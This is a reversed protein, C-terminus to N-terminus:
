RWDDDDLKECCRSPTTFTSRSHPAAAELSVRDVRISCRAIVAVSSVVVVVVAAAPPVIVVVLLAGPLLALLPDCDNPSSSEAVSTAAM